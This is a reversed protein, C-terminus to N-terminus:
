ASEADDDLWLREVRVDAKSGTLVVLFEGSRLHAMREGHGAMADWAEGRTRGTFVLERRAPVVPLARLRDREARLEGQLRDHADDPLHRRGLDALDGLVRELADAHDSGPIVIYAVEPSTDNGMMAEVAADASDADWSTRCERCYYTRKRQGGRSTSNRYAVAGCQGCYLGGSYDAYGHRPKPGTSGRGDLAANAADFVAKSVIPESRHERMVGEHDTVRHRGTWYAPARLIDATSSNTRAIGHGALYTRMVPVPQGAVAREYLERILPATEPDPEIYKARKPGRVRYGVRVRGGRFGGAADIAANGRRVAQSLNASYDFDGGAAAVTVHWGGATSLDGYLSNDCAEFRGGIGDLQLLYGISVKTGRREFRSSAVAVVRTYLGNQVDDLVEALAAQQKGRFASTDPLEFSREVRYSHSAVHAALAHRQSALDQPADSVRLWLAVRTETM